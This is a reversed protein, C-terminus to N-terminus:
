MVLLDNISLIISNDKNKLVDFVITLDTKKTGNSIDYRLLGLENDNAEEYSIFEYNLPLLQQPIKNADFYDELVNKIEMETLTSLKNEFIKNFEANSLLDLIELLKKEMIDM